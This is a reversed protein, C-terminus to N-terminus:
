PKCIKCPRYGYNIAEKRTDFSIVCKKCNAYRCHLAHFVKSKINGVYKVSANSAISFVLLFTIFVYLVTAKKM